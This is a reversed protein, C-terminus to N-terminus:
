ILTEELPLFAQLHYLLHHCLSLPNCQQEFLCAFDLQVWVRKTPGISRVCCPLFSGEDYGEFSAKVNALSFTVWDIVRHSSIVHSSCSSSASPVHTSSLWSDFAERPFNLVSTSKSSLLWAFTLNCKVVSFTYLISLFFLNGHVVFTSHTITYCIIAKKLSKM